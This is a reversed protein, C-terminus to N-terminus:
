FDSAPLRLVQMRALLEQWRGLRDSAGVRRGRGRQRALWLGTGNFSYVPLLDSRGSAPEITAVLNDLILPEAGPRPYYTLVMHARNLRVAKVYTLCLRDEKVGLARLTFYKAISFDECDGGGSALFELPTAWYDEQQWHVADDIFHMRNFFRNVLELRDRESGHRGERILRQWALLRERAPTGYRAQAEQLVRESLTFPQGSMLPPVLLFLLLCAAAPLPLCRRVHGPVPPRCSPVVPVAVVRCNL